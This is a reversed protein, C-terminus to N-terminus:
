VKKVCHLFSLGPTTVPLERFDNDWCLCNEFFSIIHLWWWMVLFPIIFLCFHHKAVMCFRLTGMKQINPLTKSDVDGSCVLSNSIICLFSIWAASSLFEHRLFSLTLLWLETLKLLLLSLCIHLWLKCYWFFESYAPHSITWWITCYLLHIWFWYVFM